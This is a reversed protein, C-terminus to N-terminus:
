ASKSRYLSADLSEPTGGELHSYILSCSQMYTVQSTMLIHDSRRVLYVRDAQPTGGVEDVSPHERTLVPSTDDTLGVRREIISEEDNVWIARWADSQGRINQQEADMTSDFDGDNDGIHEVFHDHIFDDFFEADLVDDTLMVNDYLNNHTMVIRYSTVDELSRPLLLLPPGPTCDFALCHWRICRHRGGRM